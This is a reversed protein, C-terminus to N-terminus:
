SLNVIKAFATPDLSAGGVLAGDVDKQSIIEKANEPKVSGGYLIEMASATKADYSHSLRSRILHHTEQVMQPTATKGTGIAWVPEYAIIVQGVEEKALGLFASSLQKELVEQTQGNAREEEKEGICLIPQLGEKLARLLKKHIFGDTEHFLHRRESHGLLVFDAGAAKVMLASIEGTYGGAEESHMNQAGIILNTEEAAQVVSFLSIFPVALFVSAESSAVLPALTHVYELSEKITKYMKWNGVIIKPRDM